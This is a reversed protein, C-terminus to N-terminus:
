SCNMKSKSLKLLLPAMNQIKLKQAYQFNKTGHINFDGRVETRLCVPDKIRSLLGLINLYTEELSREWIKKKKEIRCLLGLINLSNKISPLIIFDKQCNQLSSGTYKPTKKAQYFLFFYKNRWIHLSSGTYELINKSPLIINWKAIKCFHFLINLSDKAQYLFLSKKKKLDAM